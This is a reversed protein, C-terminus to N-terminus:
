RLPFFYNGEGKQQTGPSIRQNDIKKNQLLVLISILRDANM